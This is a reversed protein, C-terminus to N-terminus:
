VVPEGGELFSRSESSQPSLREKRSDAELFESFGNEGNYGHLFSLGTLQSLADFM